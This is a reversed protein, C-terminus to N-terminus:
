KKVILGYFPRKILCGLHENRNDSDTLEVIACQSGASDYLIKLFDIL